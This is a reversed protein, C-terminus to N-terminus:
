REMRLRPHGTAGPLALAASGALVLPCSAWVESPAFGALMRFATDVNGTDIAWPGPLSCTTRSPASSSVWFVEARPDGFCGAGSWSGPSQRAAAV